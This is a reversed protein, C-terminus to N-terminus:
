KIEPENDDESNPTLLARTEAPAPQAFSTKLDAQKAEAVGLMDRQQTNCTSVKANVTAGLEIELAGYEISGIASATSRLTLQQRVFIKESVTGCIEANNATLTGNISGSSGVYIDGVDVEGNICGDLRLAGPTYVKGELTVGEGVVLSEKPSQQNKPPNNM